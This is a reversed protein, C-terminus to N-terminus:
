NGVEEEANESGLPAPSALGADVAERVLGDAPLKNAGLAESELRTDDAGALPSEADFEVAEDVGAVDAFVNVVVGATVVLSKFGVIPRPPSVLAGAVEAVVVVVPAATGLAVELVGAVVDEVVATASWCDAVDATVVSVDLEVSGVSRENETGLRPADLAPM